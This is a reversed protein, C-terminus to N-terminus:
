EQIIYPRKLLMLYFFLLMHQQFAKQSVVLGYLSITAALLPFIALLFYFATGAAILPVNHDQINGFVRKAIRWWSSISLDFLSKASKFNDKNV